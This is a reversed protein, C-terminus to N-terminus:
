FKTADIWAVNGKADKVGARANFKGYYKSVGVWFVRGTFGDVTVATGKAPIRALLKEAESKLAAEKSAKKAARAARKDAEAKEAAAREADQRMQEAARANCIATRAAEWAPYADLMEPGGHLLQMDIGDVVPELHDVGRDCWLNTCDVWAFQEHIELERPTDWSAPTAHTMLRGDRERPAVGHTGLWVLAYTCETSRWDSYDMTDSWNRRETSKLVNLVRGQFLVSKATTQGTRQDRTTSTIPM